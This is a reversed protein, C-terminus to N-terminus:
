PCQAARLLSTFYTPVIGVIRLTEVVEMGWRRAYPDTTVERYQTTGAHSDDACTASCGICLTDSRLKRTHQRTSSGADDTPQRTANVGSCM